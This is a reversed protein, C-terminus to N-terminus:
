CYTGYTQISASGYVYGVLNLSVTANAKAILHILHLQPM